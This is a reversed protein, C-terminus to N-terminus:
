YSPSAATLACSYRIKLELEIESGLKRSIYWTRYCTVVWNSPNSGGVQPVHNLETNRAVKTSVQSIFWHISPLYREVRRERKRGKLNTFVSFFFFFVIGWVVSLFRHVPMINQSRHWDVKKKKVVFFVQSFSNIFSSKTQSQNRLNGSCSIQRRIFTTSTSPSAPVSSDGYPSGALLTTLFVNM